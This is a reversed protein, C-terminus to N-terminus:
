HPKRVQEDLRDFLEGGTLSEFVLYLETNSEYVEELRVIHPHDLQILIQIESLLQMLMQPTEVDVLDLCKAAYPLGTSRHHVLRVTGSVGCGIVKGDHVGSYVDEILTPTTTPTTTTSSTITASNKNSTSIPHPIPHSSGEDISLGLAQTNIEIHVVNATFHNSRREDVM